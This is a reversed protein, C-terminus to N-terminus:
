VSNEEKWIDMSIHSMGDKQVIASVYGKYAENGLSLNIKNGSTFASPMSSQLVLKLASPKFGTYRLAGDSYLQLNSGYKLQMESLGVLLEGEVLVNIHSGAKFRGKRLFVGTDKQRAGAREYCYFGITALATEGLSLLSDGEEATETRSVLEIYYRGNDRLLSYALNPLSLGLPVGRVVQAPLDKLVNYVITENM